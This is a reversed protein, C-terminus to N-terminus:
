TGPAVNPFTYAGQASSTGSVKVGTERNTLEVQASAVAAGSPDTISGLVAGTAANQARCLTNAFGCIFLVALGAIARRSLMAVEQSESNSVTYARLCPFELCLVGLSGSGM